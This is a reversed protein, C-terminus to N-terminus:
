NPCREEVVQGPLKMTDLDQLPAKQIQLNCKLRSGAIRRLSTSILASISQFKLPGVPDM